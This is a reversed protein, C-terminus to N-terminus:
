EAPAATPAPRQGLKQDLQYLGVGDSGILRFQDLITTVSDEEEVQEAVFWQLFNNTAHDKLELSLDVLSNILGTVKQEHRYSEEFVQLPSGWETPPGEIPALRVTGGRECVFDFLKMAHINEEEAQRRM